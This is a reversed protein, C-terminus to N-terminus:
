KVFIVKSGDPSWVGHDFNDFDKVVTQNTGDANMIWSEVRRDGDIRLFRIRGDKTWYPRNDHKPNDTLRIAGTEDQLASKERTWFYFGLASIIMATLIGLAFVPKWSSKRLDPKVVTEVKREALGVEQLIIQFRPNRGLFEFEKDFRIWTLNPDHEELATELWEIAKEENDSAAYISAINVSSIYKEVKM